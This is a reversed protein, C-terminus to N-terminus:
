PRHDLPVRTHHRSYHSQSAAKRCCSVVSSHGGPTLPSPRATPPLHATQLTDQPSALCLKHSRISSPAHTRLCGWGCANGAQFCMCCAFMALEYDAFSRLLTRQQIRAQWRQQFSCLGKLLTLQPAAMSTAWDVMQSWITEYVFMSTVWVHKNTYSLM